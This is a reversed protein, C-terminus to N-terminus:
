CTPTDPRALQQNLAAALRSIGDDTAPETLNGYGLVLGDHIPRPPQFCSGLTWVALSRKRAEEELAPGDFERGLRVIAHLGAALGTVRAEPLHRAVAAVLADRRGRYRRRAQRLHRDYAGGEILRARPEPYGFDRYSTESLAQRLARLWALRPFGALDPVGPFFDFAARAVEPLDVTVGTRTASEAVYTGAGHRAVLCGEALLQAYADVVLRRSVGLDGALMRIPPVM